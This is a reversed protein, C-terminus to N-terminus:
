GWKYWTDTASQYIYIEGADVVLAVSGPAVNFVAGCNQKTLVTNLKAVDATLLSYEGHKNITINGFNPATESDFLMGLLEVQM